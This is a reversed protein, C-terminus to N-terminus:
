TVGSRPSPHTLFAILCELHEFTMRSWILERSVYNNLAQAPSVEKAAILYLDGM